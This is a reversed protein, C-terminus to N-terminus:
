NILSPTCKEECTVFLLSYLSSESANRKKRSILTHSAVICSWATVHQLGCNIKKGKTEKTISYWMYVVVDIPLLSRAHLICSRQAAARLSTRPPPEKFKASQVRWTATPPRMSFFHNVRGRRRLERRRRKEARGDGHRCNLVDLSLPTESGVGGAIQRGAYADAFWTEPFHAVCM